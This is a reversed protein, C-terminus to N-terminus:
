KKTESQTGNQTGNLFETYHCRGCYYRDKHKAMFTGERCRPCVKGSREVGQGSTKFFRNVKVSKHKM